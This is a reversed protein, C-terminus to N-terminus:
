QQQQQQQQQKIKYKISKNNNLVNFLDKLENTITGEETNSNLIITRFKEQRYLMQILSNIACTGGLNVLGQESM